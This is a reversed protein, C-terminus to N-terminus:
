WWQLMLDQYFESVDLVGQGDDYDEFEVYNEPYGVAMVASPFISGVLSGGVFDCNLKAYEVGFNFFHMFFERMAETFPYQVVQPAGVHTGGQIILTEDLVLVEDGISLSLDTVRVSGGSNTFYLKLVADEKKFGVPLSVVSGAESSPSNTVAGDIFHLPGLPGYMASVSMGM